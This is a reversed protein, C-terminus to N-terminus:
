RMSTNERPEDLDERGLLRGLAGSTGPCQRRRAAPRAAVELVVLGVVVQDEGAIVQIAHVVALHDVRVHIAIGVDRDRRLGDVGVSAVCIPM